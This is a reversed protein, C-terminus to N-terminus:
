AHVHDQEDQAGEGRHQHPPTRARVPQRTLMVSSTSYESRPLLQHGTSHPGTNASSPNPTSANVGPGTFAAVHSSTPPTSAAAAAIQTYPRRRSTETRSVGASSTCPRSSSATLRMAATVPTPADTPARTSPPLQVIGFPVPSTGNRSSGSSTTRAQ